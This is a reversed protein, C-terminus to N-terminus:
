GARRKHVCPWEYQAECQLEQKSGGAWAQQEWRRAGAGWGVLAALVSSPMAYGVYACVRM